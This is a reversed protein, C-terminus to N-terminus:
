RARRSLVVRIPATRTMTFTDKICERVYKEPDFGPAFNADFRGIFNALMLRMEMWALKKGVCGTPGYGFPMFAAAEFREEKSPDVFREPRFADPRPSFNRPDHHLATTPVSLITAPPVVVTSASHKLNLVLSSSAGSPSERQLGSAVPPYLRMTENLVANLWVCEKALKDFDLDHDEEEYDHGFVDYLEKRVRELVDPHKVLHFIVMALVSSTTDSGAVVVLGADANLENWTHKWGTAKDEGLLHTFIDARDDDGRKKEASRGVRERLAEETFDEFDKIPNPAVRAVASLYPVAGLVMIAQMAGELLEIPKSFSGKGLLDFSRSFGLESMVDFAYFQCWQDMAVEGGTRADLQTLLKRTTQRLQAEYSRLAAVSFGADWIRRRSRHDGTDITVHLSLSRPGKGGHAATYWPGKHCASQGGLIQNIAGVDNISLERPGVRVVDGYTAHLSTVKAPRQGALDTPVWAWKSLALSSPGKFSRLRHFFLRYAAISSLLSATYATQLVALSVIWDFPSSSPHSTAALFLYSLSGVLYVALVTPASPEYNAYFLHSVLALGVSAQVDLLTPLM